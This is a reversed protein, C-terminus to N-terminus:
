APTEKPAVAPKTRGRLVGGVLMLFGPAAFSSPAADYGAVVAAHVRESADLKAGGHDQRVDAARMEAALVERAGIRLFSAVQLVSLWAFGVVLLCLGIQKM